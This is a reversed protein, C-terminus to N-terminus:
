VLVALLLIGGLAAWEIWPRDTGRAAFARRVPAQLLTYSMWGFLALVAGVGVLGVWPAAGLEPLPGPGRVVIGSQGSLLLGGLFLAAGVCVATYLLAGVRWGPQRRLLGIGMPIGLIAANLHYSRVAGDGGGSGALLDWAALGGMLLFLGAVRPLTRPEERAAEPRAAEPRAAEPLPAHM